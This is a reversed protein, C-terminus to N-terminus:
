KEIKMVMFSPTELFSDYREPMATKWEEPPMPERLATLRLGASLVAEVYDGFTHHYSETLFDPIEDDLAIWPQVYARVSKDLYRVRWSDDSPFVGNEPVPYQASYVPHIVSLVCSGGGNLTERISKFLTPLDAIYHTATSSFIFDYKDNLFDFPERIDGKIFEAKSQRGAAKRLAIELMKGSLDVGTIKKPGLEELLFTFRGTGCGLDLVKAYRLPPLLKRVCPWEIKNSYSNEGGTFAEYAAAMKDWDREVDSSM